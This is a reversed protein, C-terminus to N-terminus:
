LSDVFADLAVNVAAPAEQQVWHGVGPVITTGRFDACASSATDYIDMGPVFGRVGDLEGGIFAAPQQLVADPMPGIQEADLGQARYRNFAGVWGGAEFADVYVQLDDTTMWAPVPDPDVLGDLLTADAPKQAFLSEGADGSAAFYIMRLTRAVDASVEAEVVGPAQIYLQYFFQDKYIERWLDVSSLTSVPTYPVSLGAVASVKDAHLRATNWAIPAGWDHGFVIATGNGLEDIVAAADSCLETLAYAEIAEPKSSGGYGRVDMAAVTFGREAFHEMQHRWSYWLEPWGHICLILPGNGTVAVRLDIDGNRVTVFDPTIM